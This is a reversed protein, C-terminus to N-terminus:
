IRVFRRPKQNFNLMDGISASAEDTTGLRGLKWTDEIFRVISGFGYTTHSVEEQPVYPSVVIMPVRFGAGGQQDIFPPPIPDYFGGWDDWVVIIATSDWYSSNGIANVVSAVWEPGDDVRYGPSDSNDADPAVWSMSPLRGKAIDRFITTEPNVIHSRERPNDWVAQIALFGDWNPARRFSPTYYKWSVSHADLLTQLTEYTFCPFPGGHYEYRLHITILNTKSGVESPCGWPEASPYDIISVRSSIETGGRILDQHATFDGGGQTQFMRDAIAYEAAAVRYPRIQAPKVYEYRYEFRGGILNFGCMTGHDYATVYSHYTDLLDPTGALDVEKLRVKVHKAHQGRGIIECGVKTTAFLDNFTRREQVLLVIHRIPSKQSDQGLAASSQPMAGPAAIPPQSAGCGALVAAAMCSCLAYRGFDLSRM